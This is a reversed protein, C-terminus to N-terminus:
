VKAQSPWSTSVDITEDPAVLAHPDSSMVKSGVGVKATSGPQVTVGNVKLDPPAKDLLSPIASGGGDPSTPSGCASLVLLVALYWKRGPPNM